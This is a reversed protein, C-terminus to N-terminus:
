HGYTTPTNTFVPSYPSTANGNQNTYVGGNISSAYSMEYCDRNFSTFGPEATVNSVATYNPKSCTNGTNSVSGQYPWFYFNGQAFACNFNIFLLTFYFLHKMSKQNIHTYVFRMM